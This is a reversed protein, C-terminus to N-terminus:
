NGASLRGKLFEIVEGRNHTAKEIFDQTVALGDEHKASWLIVEVLMPVLDIGKPTLSYVKQTKLKEYTKSHVFGALELKKLRDSM